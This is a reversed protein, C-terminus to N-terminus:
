PDREWRDTESWVATNHPRSYVILRRVRYIPGTHWTLDEAYGVEVNIPDTQGLPEFPDCGICPAYPDRGFFAIRYSGPGGHNELRTRMDNNPLADVSVLVVDTPGPDVEVSPDPVPETPTDGCGAVTAGLAVVLVTWRM